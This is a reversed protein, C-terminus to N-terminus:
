CFPFCEHSLFGKNQEGKEKQGQGQARSQQGDRGGIGLGTAATVGALAGGIGALADVVAVAGSFCTRARAIGAFGCVTAFAGIGCAGGRAFVSTFARITAFSRAFASIGAFAGSVGAGRCTFIGALGCLASAGVCADGCGTGLCAAGGAAGAGNFISCLEEGERYSRQARNREPDRGGKKDKSTTLPEPSQM